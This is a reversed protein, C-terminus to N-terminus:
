NRVYGRSKCNGLRRDLTATWKAVATRSGTGWESICRRALRTSRQAPSIRPEGGQQERRQRVPSSWVGRVQRTTADRCSGEQHVFGTERLDGQKCAEPGVGTSGRARLVVKALVSTRGTEQPVGGCAKAMGRLDSTSPVSKRSREGFIAGSAQSGKVRV